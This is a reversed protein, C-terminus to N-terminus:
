KTPVHNSIWVQLTSPGSILLHKLLLYHLEVECRVGPTLKQKQAQSRHDMAGHTFCPPHYGVEPLLVASVVRSSILFESGKFFILLSPFCVRLLDSFARATLPPPEQLATLYSSQIARPGSSAASIRLTICSCLPVM